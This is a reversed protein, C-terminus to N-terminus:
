INKFKYIEYMSAFIFIIQLPIFIPDKLYISYSLLALGGFLFLWNQQKKYIVGSTILLLGVAGLIKTIIELM